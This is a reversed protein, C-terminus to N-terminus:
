SSKSFIKSFHSNDIIEQIEYLELLFDLIAKSNKDFTSEGHIYKFEKGIAFNQHRYIDSLFKKITQIKYKRNSGGRFSVLARGNEGKLISPITVITDLQFTEGVLNTDEQSMFYDLLQMVKREKPSKSEAMLTREQYKLIFLLAAVVHKCAGQDKLRSPCNCNYDFYGDEQEDVTVSYNYSGKM